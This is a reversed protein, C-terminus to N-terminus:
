APEGALTRAPAEPTPSQAAAAAAVAVAVPFRLRAAAGGAVAELHDAAGQRVVVVAAAQLTAERALAEATTADRQALRHSLLLREVAGLALAQRVPTVGLAAHGRPSAEERLREVWGRHMADRVGAAALEASRVLTGDPLPERLGPSWAARAAVAAPLLGRAHRGVEEAGGILLVGDPPLAAEAQALIATLLRQRAELLRRQALDTLAEGRTGTHFGQRPTDGMHAAAGLAMTVEERALESAQDGAVRVLRAQDRELQLVLVPADATALLFPLVVAGEGWHVQTPVPTALAATFRAVAGDPGAALLACWGGVDHIAHAGPLAGLLARECAAFASASAGNAAPGAAETAEAAARARRLAQRLPVLWSRQESVDALGGGVYASLVPHGRHAKVFQRFSEVMPAAM